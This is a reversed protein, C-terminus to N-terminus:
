VDEAEGEDLIDDEHHRDVLSELSDDDESSIDELHELVVLPDMLKWAPMQALLSTLLVGGRLTWLVYGVTLGGSVTIAASQHTLKAVSTESKIVEEVQEWEQWLSQSNLTSHLRNVTESDTSTRWNTLLSQLSGAVQQTVDAALTFSESQLNGREEITPDMELAQSVFEFVETITTPLVILGATKDEDETSSDAEGNSNNSNILPNPDTDTSEDTTSDSDGSNDETIGSDTDTNSDTSTNGDDNGYNTTTGGANLQITVTIPETVFEGDTLRYTFQDIPSSTGDGIYTFSGTTNLTVSGHSADSELIVTLVASDVDIDNLLVGLGGVILDEGPDVYYHDNSGNPAENINNVLILISQLDTLGTEDTVNVDLTYNSRTEFDLSGVTTIEGTTADIVFRGAGTGGAISFTLDSSDPDNVQVFGVSAAVANEDISFSTSVIDPPDNVPTITVEFTMQSTLDGDSAVVTITVPGGSASAAPTVDITWDTGSGSIILNSNPIISPHSSTATVSLAGLSSDVDALTFSLPGTSNDELITQDAINSITPADNTNTFSVSASQVSSWLSGDGVRVDFAPALEGGDHIFVIEGNTLQAGNFTSIPTSWDGEQAFHGHSVNSVEYILDDSNTEVDTGSLHSSSLFVQQGESITLQANLLVPPDNVPQVTVQFTTQTSTVGDSVAVTVMLPGGFQNTAPSLTITRNAGTGSLVINSDPLILQNDSTATVVLSGAANDV